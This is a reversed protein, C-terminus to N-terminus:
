GPPWSKAPWCTLSLRNPMMRPPRATLHISGDSANVARDRVGATEVDGIM